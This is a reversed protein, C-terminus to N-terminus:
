GRGAPPPPGGAGPPGAEGGGAGAEAHKEIHPLAAPLAALLAAAQAAPLPPVDDLVLLLIQIGTREEFSRCDAQLAVPLALSDPPAHLARLAERFTATTEATHRELFTLRASLGPVHALDEGLRGVGAGLTFLMPGVTDHLQPALRQREEHVAIEAARAVTAALTLGGADDEQLPHHTADPRDTMSDLM